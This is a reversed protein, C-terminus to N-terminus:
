PLRVKMKQQETPRTNFRYNMNKFLLTGVSKETFASLLHVSANTYNVQAHQPCGVMLHCIKGPEISYMRFILDLGDQIINQHYYKTIVVKNHSVSNNRKRVSKRNEKSLKFIGPNQDQRNSPCLAIIHKHM